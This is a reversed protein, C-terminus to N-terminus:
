LGYKKRKRWLTATDIELMRSAEDFDKAVQLVRRIHQREIEVLSFLGNKQDDSQQLEIPLHVPEIPGEKSLLVSREMVNELERVNGPWRYSTLLKLAEASLEIKRDPCFKKLFYYVLLLIDEPRERLPPLTIRVANLRYYLDERFSGEQLADSLKRNTAAVVRVDVKRTINEGV